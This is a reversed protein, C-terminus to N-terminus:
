EEENASPSVALDLLNKNINVYDFHEDKEKMLRHIEPEQVVSTPKMHAAHKPANASPKVRSLGMVDRIHIQNEMFHLLSPARRNLYDVQDLPPAKKKRVDIHGVKKTPSPSQNRKSKSPKHYPEPM